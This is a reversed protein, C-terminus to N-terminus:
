DSKRGGDVRERAPLGPAALHIGCRMTHRRRSRSCEGRRKPLSAISSKGDDSEPGIRWRRQGSVGKRDLRGTHRCSVRKEKSWRDIYEITAQRVGPLRIFQFFASRWRGNTAHLNVPTSNRGFGIWTSSDKALDPPLFPRTPNDLDFETPYKKAKVTAQLTDPLSEIETRKLALQRILGALQKQVALRQADDPRRRFVRSPATADFLAWLQRQLIARQVVSYSKIDEPTLADLAATLGPYTADDFPFKSFKFIMPAIENEGYAVGNRAHRVMLVDYLEDYPDAAEEANLTASTALVEPPQSGSDSSKTLEAVPTNEDAARGIDGGASDARWLERLKKWTRDDQKQAITAKSIADPSGEKFVLRTSMFIRTRVGPKGGHCRMCDNLRTSTPVGESTEGTGFPDYPDFAAANPGAIGFRHDRRNMAKMIANGKFLERPQMVFEAVCQTAEPRAKRASRDVNLYARLQISVILPSLIMEGDDSILFAQEVLAFKTGVPFLKRNKSQKLFSLTETRGGPLRMFPLFTSRMDLERTHNGAPIPREDEGVCIWSSEQSYLDAPLFPKFRDRPDHHQAFGGAEVTASMTNPLARIQAKTLALRRILSAITPQVAARRDLHSKPFQQRGSWAGRGWEFPFTTDFVEWLHRQLLARKVDSYEEIRAQPIAAFADLAVNFKDYIKDGFPFDSWASIAPSAENEVYSKGDPGYRTMIVDYLVDYPDAADEAGRVRGTLLQGLTLVLLAVRLLHPIRLRRNWCLTKISM